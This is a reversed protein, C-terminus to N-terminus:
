LICTLIKGHYYTLSCERQVYNTVVPYHVPFPTSKGGEPMADESCVLLPHSFLSACLFQYRNLCCGNSYSGQPSSARHLHVRRCHVGDTLFQTVQYVRSQGSPSHRYLHVGDRFAPPIEHTFVLNLRLISFSRPKRPVPRGFRDRSVLNEPAFEFLSSINEWNMEGRAPNAVIGPQDMSQQFPQGYHLHGSYWYRRHYLLTCM